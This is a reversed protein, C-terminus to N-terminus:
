PEPEGRSLAAFGRVSDFRAEYIGPLGSLERALDLTAVAEDNRGLVVCCLALRWRLWLNATMHEWIM